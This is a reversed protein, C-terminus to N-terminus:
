LEEKRKVFERFCPDTDWHDECVLVAFDAAIGGDYVVCFKKQKSCCERIKSIESNPINDAM